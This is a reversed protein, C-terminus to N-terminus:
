SRDGESRRARAREILDIWAAVRDSMGRAVEVVDTPAAARIDHESRRRWVATSVTLATRPSRAANSV